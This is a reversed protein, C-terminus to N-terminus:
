DGGVPGAADDTAVLLRCVLAEDYPPLWCAFVRCNCIRSRDARWVVEIKGPDFFRTGKGTPM